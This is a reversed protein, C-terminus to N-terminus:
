KEIEIQAQEIIELVGDPPAVTSRQVVLKSVGDVIGTEQFRMDEFVQGSPANRSTKRYDAYFSQKVESTYKTVVFSLFAHEVRKSQIRCSFMLDTLRPERNDVIAFGVVGYSGFRDDCKIVYTDLFRNQLIEELKARDYRNGSFNMQNTRQTLEHVREMNEEDMPRLTIKIECHRLFAMYDQGFGEALTQRENEVTYMKRRNASEETVPVKLEPLALLNQFELADFVRVAPLSVRIEEREFKSDDM